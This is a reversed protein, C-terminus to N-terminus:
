DHDGFSLLTSLLRAVNLPTVFELSDSYKNGTSFSRSESREGKRVLVTGQKVQEKTKVVFKLGIEYNWAFFTM